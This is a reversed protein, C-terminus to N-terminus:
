AEHRRFMGRQRLLMVGAGFFALGLATPEPIQEININDLYFKTSGNQDVSGLIRNYKNMTTFGGTLWVDINSKSGVLANSSDYVALSYLDPDSDVQIQVRYFAGLTLTSTGLRTWSSSGDRYFFGFDSNGGDATPRLGFYAGSSGSGQSVFGVGIAANSKSDATIEFSFRVNKPFGDATPTFVNSFEKPDGSTPRTFEAMQTGQPPVITGVTGVVTGTRDSGTGWTTQGPLAGLTYPPSEFGTDYHTIPAAMAGPMFLAAALVAMGGSFFASIYKSIQTKM